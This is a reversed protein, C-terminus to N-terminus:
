SQKMTLGTAVIFRSDQGVPEKWTIAEMTALEIPVMEVSLVQSLYPLLDPLYLTGGSIFVRGIQEGPNQGSFYRLAKQVEAALSDVMPQLASRVRGELQNPLLGYTRKYEEARQIDLGVGREISRSFLIGAVPFSRVFQLSGQHILAVTSSSAGIHLLAVNETPQVLLQLVRLQALTDTEMDVVDLNADLLIDAFDQIIQKKAGVMLVDMSPDAEKKDSRRLVSYEYKMEELPIPIHQEVQWQIASALEADSLMPMRVIQTSVLSEALAVRVNNPSIKNQQFATTLTSVLQQRKEPSDPYVAGIPNPVEVSQLVEVGPRKTRGAVIKIAYSGIDLGVTKM